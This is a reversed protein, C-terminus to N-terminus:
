QAMEAEAEALSQGLLDFFEDQHEKSWKKVVRILCGKIRKISEASHLESQTKALSELIRALSNQVQARQNAPVADDETVAVQLLKAQQLQILTETVLNVESLRIGVLKSDIKARLALLGEQDLSELDTKSNKGQKELSFSRLGTTQEPSLPHDVNSENSM